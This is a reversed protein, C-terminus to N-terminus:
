AGTALRLGAPVAFCVTALVAAFSSGVLGVAERARLPFDSRRGAISAMIRRARPLRGAAKSRRKMSASSSACDAASARYATSDSAGSRSIRTHSVLAIRRHDQKSRASHHVGRGM